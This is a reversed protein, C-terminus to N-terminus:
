VIAASLWKAAGAAADVGTVCFSQRWLGVPSRLLQVRCYVNQSKNTVAEADRKVSSSHKNDRRKLIM